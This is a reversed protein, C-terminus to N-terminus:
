IGPLLSDRDPCLDRTPTLVLLAPTSTTASARSACILALRAAIPPPLFMLMRM